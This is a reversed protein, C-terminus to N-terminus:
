LVTQRPIYNRIMSLMQEDLDMVFAENVNNQAIVFVYSDAKPDNSSYNFQRTGAYEKLAPAGKKTLLKASKIDFVRLRKRKSKNVILDVSMESNLLAYEFELHTNPIQFHFALALLIVIAVLVFPHLTIIALLVMLILLIFALAITAYDFLGKKRVVIQEYFTDNM